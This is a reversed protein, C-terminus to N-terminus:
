ASRMWPARKWSLRKTMAKTLRKVHNVRGHLAVITLTPDTKLEDEPKFEDM